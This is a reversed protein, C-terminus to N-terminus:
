MCVYKSIKERKLVMERWGRPHSPDTFRIKNIRFSLALRECKECPKALIVREVVNVSPRRLGAVYLTAGRLRHKNARVLAHEEACVSRSDKIFKSQGKHCWGWQFIRGDIDVLVAGIQYSMIFDHVRSRALDVAFDM